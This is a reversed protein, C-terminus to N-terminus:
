YEYKSFATQFAELKGPLKKTAMKGIM